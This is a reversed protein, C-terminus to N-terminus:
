ILKEEFPVFGIKVTEFGLVNGSVASVWCTDTSIVMKQFLYPLVGPKGGM